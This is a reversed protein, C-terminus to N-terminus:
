FSHIKSSKALKFTIMSEGEPLSQKHQSCGSFRPSFILIGRQLCQSVLLVTQKKVIFYPPSGFAYMWYNSRSIQRLCNHIRFLSWHLPQSAAAAALDSWDDGVRHSGRSPLGGPEGTGPIRWALVSSHTAMEKGM